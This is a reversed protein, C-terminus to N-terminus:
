KLSVCFSIGIKGGTRVSQNSSGKDQNDKGPELPKRGM